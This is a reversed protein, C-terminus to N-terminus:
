SESPENQEVKGEPNCMAAISSFMEKFFEDSGYDSGTNEMMTRPDCGCVSGDDGIMSEMMKFCDSLDFRSEKVEKNEDISASM